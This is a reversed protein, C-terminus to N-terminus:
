RAVGATVARDIQRLVILAAVALGVLSLCVAFATDELGRRREM